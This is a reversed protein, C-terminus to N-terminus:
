SYKMSHFLVFRLTFHRKNCFSYYWVIFHHNKIRKYLLKYPCNLAYLNM